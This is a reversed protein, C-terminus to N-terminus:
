WGMVELVKSRIDESLCFTTGILVARAGANGVTQVDDHTRIASESVAVAHGTLLPIVKLSTDLRTEFTELDRNNVGILTAGLEIALGAEEASNVEVLADMGLETALGMLDALQSRSLGNVILLIADAGLARSQFVQVEDLIFDKRLTPMSTASRCQGLFEPSGQFFEVDTLVSLCDAGAEWYAIAIAVPDFPDRILGKVPSARKVEAILAVPHASRELASKFGIPPPQDLAQARWDQAVTGARLQAVEARKSNWIQDLVTM